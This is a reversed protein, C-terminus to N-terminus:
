NVNILKRLSTNKKDFISKKITWFENQSSKTPSSQSQKKKKKLQKHDKLTIFYSSRGNVIIRNAVKKNQIKQKGDSSVKNIM